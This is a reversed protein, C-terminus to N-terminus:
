LSCSAKHGFWGHNYRHYHKGGCSRRNTVVRHRRSPDHRASSGLCERIYYPRDIYLDDFEARRVFQDVNIAQTSEVEVAELDESPARSPLKDDSTEGRRLSVGPLRVETTARSLLPFSGVLWEADPCLSTPLFHCTSHPRPPGSSLAAYIAAALGAIAGGVILCDVAGARKWHDISISM